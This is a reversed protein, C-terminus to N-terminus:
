DQMEGHIKFAHKQGRDTLMIMNKHFKNFRVLGKSELRKSAEFAMIITFEAEEYNLQYLDFFKDPREALVMLIVKELDSVRRSGIFQKVRVAATLFARYIQPLLSFCLFAGTFILGSVAALRIELSLEPVLNPLLKNGFILVLCTVFGAGALSRSNSLHKILQSLWEM